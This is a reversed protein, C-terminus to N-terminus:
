YKVDLTFASVKVSVNQVGEISKIAKEIQKGVERTEEISGKVTVSVQGNEASVRITPYDNVLAAEIRAELALDDLQQRSAPTTELFPLRVTHAIIDVADNVTMKGIHLVMDYLKPNQTDIGYLDHSWKQRADDDKKLLHLAQEESVGDRQKVDQVRSEIDAIIRVKLVHAVDQLFFHGALGHYVMDGKQLHSLLASRIYAIYKKKGYTFRDLFGFSDHIAHTLKIEPVGFQESAELLIERSICEYGLKEALKEATEKGFSHSGRSITIISM